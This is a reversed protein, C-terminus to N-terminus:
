EISPPNIEMITKTIFNSKVLFIPTTKYNFFLGQLKFESEGKLHTYKTNKVGVMAM